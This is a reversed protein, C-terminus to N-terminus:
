TPHGKTRHSVNSDSEIERLILARSQSGHVCYLFVALDRTRGVVCAETRQVVLKLVQLIPSRQWPLALEVPPVSQDLVRVFSWPVVYAM